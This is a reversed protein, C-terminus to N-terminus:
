TAEPQQVPVKDQETPTNRGDIIEMGTIQKQYIPNDLDDGAQPICKGYLKTLQEVAWKKDTKDGAEFMLKIFKFTPETLESLHQVIKIEDRLSKRGAM